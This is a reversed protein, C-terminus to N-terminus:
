GGILSGISSVAVAHYRIRESRRICTGKMCLMCGLRKTLLGGKPSGLQAAAMGMEEGWHLLWMEVAIAWVHM